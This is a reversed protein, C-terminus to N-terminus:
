LLKEHSVPREDEADAGSAARRVFQERQEILVPDHGGEL